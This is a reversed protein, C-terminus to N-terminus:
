ECSCIEAKDAMLLGKMYNSEPVIIYQM